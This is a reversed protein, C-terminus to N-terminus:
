QIVGAAPFIEIRAMRNNTVFVNGTEEDLLVDLPLRLQGPKPGYSGIITIKSGSMRDLVIVEGSYCDVMFIRNKSDIILGQPRSFRPTEGWGGGMGMKGKSLNTSGSLSPEMDTITTQLQGNFNFVQIRPSISLKDDGYDSVLIEKRVSDVAIGTPNALMATDKGSAPIQGTLKGKHNFVFVIKKLGDVVFISGSKSDIAIDTPKKIVTEFAGKQKLDKGAPNFVDIRHRSENGVYIHGKSYAVALPKGEVQFSRIVKNNKKDLLLIMGLRYDSVLLDGGPGFAMRIPSVLEHSVPRGQNQSKALLGVSFCLSILLTSFFINILVANRKM